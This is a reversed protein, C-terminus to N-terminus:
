ILPLVRSLVPAAGLLRLSVIRRRLPATIAQQTNCRRTKVGSGLGAKARKLGSDSPLETVSYCGREKDAATRVGGAGSTVGRLSVCPGLTLEAM